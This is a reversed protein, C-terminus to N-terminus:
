KKEHSKVEKKEQPMDDNLPIKSHQDFQSKNSPLMVWIFISISVISLLIISISKITIYDM